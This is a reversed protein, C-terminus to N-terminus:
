QRINDGFLSITTYVYVVAELIYQPHRSQSNPNGGQGGRYDGCYSCRCGSAQAIGFFQFGVSIVDM